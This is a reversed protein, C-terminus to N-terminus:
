SELPLGAADPIDEAYDVLYRVGSIRYNALFANASQKGESLGETQVAKTGTSFKKRWVTVGNLMKTVVVARVGGKGPSAKPAKGAELVKIAAGITVHRALMKPWRLTKEGEGIDVEVMEGGSTDDVEVTVISVAQCRPNTVWDPTYEPLIGLAEDVVEIFPLLLKAGEEAKVLVEKHGELLRKVSAMSPMDPVNAIAADVAEVTTLEAFLNDEM